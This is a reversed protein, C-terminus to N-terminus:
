TNKTRKAAFRGTQFAANKKSVICVALKYYIVFNIPTLIWVAFTSFFDIRIGNRTFFIKMNRLRIKINGVANRISIKLINAFNKDTRERM